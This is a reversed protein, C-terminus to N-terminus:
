PHRFCPWRSPSHNRSSCVPINLYVHDYDVQCSRVEEEVWEFVDSFSREMAAYVDQHRQFAEAQYPTFQTYNMKSGDAKGILLPHVDTPATLGQYCSFLGIIILGDNLSTYCVKTVYRNYWSFHIVDFAYDNSETRQRTDTEVLCRRGSFCRELSTRLKDRLEQPM